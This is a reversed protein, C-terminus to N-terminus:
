AEPSGRRGQPVQGGTALYELCSRPTGVSGLSGGATQLHAAPPPSEGRDSSTVSPRFCTLADRSVWLPSIQIRSM